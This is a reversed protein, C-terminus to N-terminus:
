LQRGSEAAGVCSCTRFKELRRSGCVAQLHSRERAGDGRMLVEGGWRGRFTAHRRACGSGPMGRGGAASLPTTAGLILPTVPFIPPAWSTLLLCSLSSAPHQAVGAARRGGARATRRPTCLRPPDPDSVMKASAVAGPRLPTATMRM